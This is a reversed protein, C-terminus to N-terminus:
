ARDCAASKRARLIQEAHIGRRFTESIFLSVDTLCLFLEEAFWGHPHVEWNPKRFLDSLYRPVSIQAALMGLVEISRWRSRKPVEDHRRGTPEERSAQVRADQQSPHQGLTSM